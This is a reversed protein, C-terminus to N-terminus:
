SHLSNQRPAGSIREQWHDLTLAEKAGVPTGVKMRLAANPIEPREELAARSKGQLDAM